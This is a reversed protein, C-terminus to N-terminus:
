ASSTLHPDGGGGTHAVMTSSLLQELSAMDGFRAANAFARVFLRQEGEDVSEGHDAVLRRRARSVLQRTNAHSLDLVVAIESHSYAFAERLIYAARQAPTLRELLLRVALELAQGQEVAAEPDAGTDPLEPVLRHGTSAERRIRASKTVNIALRTTVRTLFADPVLIQSRDTNQWRVWVDQLVDEAEAASGVIRRAIVFLHPRLRFFAEAAEDLDIEQAARDM